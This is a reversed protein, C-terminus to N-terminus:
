QAGFEAGGGHHGYSEAQRSVPGATNELYRQECSVLGAMDIAFVGKQDADSQGEPCDLLASFVPDGDFRPFCSWVIQARRDVLASIMCNGIVALDLSSMDVIMRTSLFLVKPRGHPCAVDCTRPRKLACKPSPRAQASAYPCAGM